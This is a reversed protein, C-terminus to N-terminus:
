GFAVVDVCADFRRNSISSRRRGYFLARNTPPNNRCNFSRIFLWSCSATKRHSFPHIMFIIM